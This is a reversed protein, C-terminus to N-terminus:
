IPKIPSVARDRTDGSDAGVFHQSAGGAGTEAGAIAVGGSAHGDQCPAVAEPATEDGARCLRDPRCAEAAIPVEVVEHGADGSGAMFREAPAGRQGSLNGVPGGRRIGDRVGPLVGGTKGAGGRLSQPRSPGPKGAGGGSGGDPGCGDDGSGEGTRSVAGGGVGDAMGDFGCARLIAANDSERQAAPDAVRKGTKANSSERRVWNRFTAVWDTKVGRQGPQATWYDCFAAITNELNLDPREKMAWLMLASDPRWDAPLRSGRAYKKKTRETETDTETDTETRTVRGNRPRKADTVTVGGGTKSKERYRKQREKNTPDTDSVYQRQEWNRVKLGGDIPDILGVSVMADIVSQAEDPWWRLIIAIHKASIKVVGWHDKKCADELMVAWVAIADTVTVAGYCRNGEGAPGDKNAMDAILAFKSDEVTGRYWRFWKM